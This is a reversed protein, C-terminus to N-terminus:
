KSVNTGYQNCFFCGLVSYTWIIWYLSTSECVMFRYSPPSRCRNPCSQNRRWTAQTVFVRAYKHLCVALNSYQPKSINILYHYCITCFVPFRFINSNFSCFSLLVYVDVRQTVAKVWTRQQTRNHDVKNHGDSSIHVTMVVSKSTIMAFNARACACFITTQFKVYIYWKLMFLLATLCTYLYFWIWHFSSKGM